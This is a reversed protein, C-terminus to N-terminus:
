GGACGGKDERVVVIEVYVKEGELWKFDKGLYIVPGGKAPSAKRVGVPLRAVLREWSGGM